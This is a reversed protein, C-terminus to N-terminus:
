LRLEYITNYSFEGKKIVSDIKEKFRLIVKYGNKEGQVRPHNTSGACEDYPMIIIGNKKLHKKANNFFRHILGEKDVLSKSISDKDLYDAFFPHNFIILDFEGEIKEFLDGQFVRSKQNIKNIQINRATNEVATKSIDTFTVIKAGNLAATIGQIGSGCGMDIVYKDLYLGNNYYLWSALFRSTILNPSLVGPFSEFNKLSFLEGVKFNYRKTKNNKPQNGILEVKLRNFKRVM